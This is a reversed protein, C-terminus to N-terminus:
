RTGRNPGDRRNRARRDPRLDPDLRDTMPGHTESSAQPREPAEVAADMHRTSLRLAGTGGSFEFGSIGLSNSSTLIILGFHTNTLRKPEPYPAQIMFLM